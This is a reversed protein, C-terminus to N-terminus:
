ITKKQPVGTGPPFTQKILERIEKIERKLKGEKKPDRPKIRKEMDALRKKLADCEDKLDKIEKTGGATFTKFGVRTKTEYVNLQAVLLEEHTVLQSEELKEAM